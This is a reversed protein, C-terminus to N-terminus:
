EQADGCEQGEGRLQEPWSYLNTTRFRERIPREQVDQRWSLQAQYGGTGSRDVEAGEDM